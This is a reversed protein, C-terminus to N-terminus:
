AGKKVISVVKDLAELFLADRTRKGEYILQEISEEVMVLKFNDNSIVVRLHFDPGKINRTVQRDEEDILLRSEVAMMANKREAKAKPNYLDCADKILQNFDDRVHFSIKKLLAKEIRAVKGNELNSITNGGLDCLRELGTQTIGAKKRAAAIGEGIVVRQDPTFKEPWEFDFVSDSKPGIHKPPNQRLDMIVPEEKEANKSDLEAIQQALQERLSLGVTAKQNLM